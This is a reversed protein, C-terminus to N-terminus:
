FEEMYFVNKGSIDTINELAVIMWDQMFVLMKQSGVQHVQIGEGLKECMEHYQNRKIIFVRM